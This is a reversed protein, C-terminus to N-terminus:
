FCAKRIKNDYERSEKQQRRRQEATANRPNPPNYHNAAAAGTAHGLEHLATLIQEKVSLKFFEPGFKTTVPALILGTTEAIATPSQLDGQKRTPVLGGQHGKGATLDQYFKLITGETVPNRINPNGPDSRLLEACPPKNLLLSANYAISWVYWHDASWVQTSDKVEIMTYNFTYVDKEVGTEGTETYIHVFTSGNAGQYAMSGIPAIVGAGSSLVGFFMSASVPFGDIYRGPGQLWAPWYYRLMGPDGSYLGLPDVFNVPDNQTYAYRNLSQPNGIGGAVPDPRMFRGAVNSYRRNVAYDTGSETDREYNTFRHKESEGVVGADEGFPLHDQTGAVAGSENTIMRTSLRDPHYYRIGGSGQAAGYEAIVQGGEWVYWTTGTATQKKVRRNAADYTNIATAGSDVKVMRSEADYQYSHAGDSTVNGVGDYVYSVSNVQAIRNSPVGAPAGGQQQLTVTQIQIGGSVANWVGVRNGWRDYDFRRNTASNWGSATKLRGVNDYTFAQNRGAGNITATVGMLQGSNGATTGAGSAGASAQYSYGISMLTQGSKTVTQSTMQLRDQSYGYSEVAGNGLTLGTVQGATNYGVNSLYSSEVSTGNMKDLGIFRGRADYNTRVRKLSPYIIATQQGVQNYEYSTTFTYGDIVRSKSTNRGLSDYGYTAYGAGDDVRSVGGNGPASTNYQLVVDVTAEVGSPLAPRVSGTDDGGLGTYWVRTLRNLGDYSYHTEVNRADVRKQVSDFDWYSYTV